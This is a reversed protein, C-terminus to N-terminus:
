VPPRDGYCANTAHGEEPEDKFFGALQLYHEAEEYDGRKQAREMMEMYHDFRVGM